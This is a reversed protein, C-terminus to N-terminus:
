EFENKIEMMDLKVCETIKVKDNINWKSLKLDVEVTIYINNEKKDYNIYNLKVNNYNLSIVKEINKILQEEDICFNNYSLEEKDFSVVANQVINFLDQKVRYININIKSYLLYISFFIFVGFVVAFCLFIIEISGKKSKIKDM